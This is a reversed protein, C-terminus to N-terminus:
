RLDAEMFILWDRLEAPVDYYPAIQRFGYSRYLAQAELQGPGTDLRMKEFGATRAEQLLRGVLMRGIGAGHCKPDVFLRKMECVGNGLDRYAVCGAPTENICALLLCGKPRGYKGPLGSLEADFAADDFYREVFQIEAAYRIRAWAVFGRMLARVQDLEARTSPEILLTM